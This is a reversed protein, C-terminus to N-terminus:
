RSKKEILSKSALSVFISTEFQPAIHDRGAQQLDAITASMLKRRFDRRAEDSIGEVFNHYAIQGKTAPHQPLDLKQFASIKAKHLDEETFNGNVLLTLAERFVQDSRAINPDRYTWFSFNGTPPEYRAKVGYAGGEVRIRPYLVKETLIEAALLIYPNNKATTIGRANFAVASEIPYYINEKKLLIGPSQWLSASGEPLQITKCSEDGHVLLLTAAYPVLKKQLQQLKEILADPNQSKQLLQTCYDLGGMCNKLQMAESTEGLSALSALEMASNKLAFEVEKTHKQLLQKIHEKDSFDGFLAMDHILDLLIEAKRDLAKGTLTFYPKGLRDTISASIGGTHEEIYRLNEIYSREKVGLQPLLHSYLGVLWLEDEALEPLPFEFEAYTIHNTFTKYHYVDLAGQKEHHLLYTEVDCSVDDLTVTPLISSDSESPKRVEKAMAVIADMQEQSLSEKIAALKDTDDARQSTPLLLVTARHKNNILYKGILNELYRPEQELKKRVQDIHTKLKIADESPRGSLKALGASYLMQLGVPGAGRKLELDALELRGIIRDITSKDIGEEKIKALTTFLHAEVAHAEENKCGTLMFLYPCQRMNSEFGSDFQKCLGSTLLANKLPAADSSMLLADLLRLAFIDEESGNTLFSIGIMAGDEKEEDPYYYTSFHPESFAPEVAPFAVPAKRSAETLVHESLYDLHTKTPLNGYFFFLANGPYYHAKYFQIFEDFTLEPIIEPDGGSFSAGVTVPYLEKLLHRIMHREPLALVGKMENYVVGNYILPTSTDDYKAFELRHGEQRLYNESLQPHFVANAYVDFLQYFDKPSQSAAPYATYEPGTLANIFTAFSRNKIRMLTDDIPYKDSGAQMVCHEVIHAVGNAGKPYTRFCIAFFNEPDDNQVHLIQAGTATHEFEVVQCDAEPLAISKTLIFGKYEESSQAQVFIFICFPLAILLGAIKKM